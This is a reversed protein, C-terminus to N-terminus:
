VRSLIHERLVEPLKPAHSYKPPHLPTPFRSCGKLPARQFIEVPSHRAPYFCNVCIAVGCNNMRNNRLGM